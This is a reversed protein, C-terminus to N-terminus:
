AESLKLNIEVARVFSSLRHVGERGVMRKATATGACNVVAM